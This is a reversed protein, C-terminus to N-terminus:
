FTLSSCQYDQKGIAQSYYEIASSYQKERFAVNGKEKLEEAAILPGNDHDQEAIPSNSSEGSSSVVPSSNLPM